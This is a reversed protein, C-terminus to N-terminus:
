LGPLGQAKWVRAITAAVALMDAPGMGLRTVEATGLRGAIDVFVGEEELAASLITGADLDLDLFIQQSATYGKERFRVPVGESELAGALARANEVVREGYGPDEALEELALGLAAIRGPHPNDVLGIGGELGFDLVQALARHLEDSNTLVMGGQPGPLSKHTSGILVDAGEELPNQFVGCAILGLVHSGDFVLRGGSAGFCHMPHPFPIFSSGALVLACDKRLRAAETEDVEYSGAKM